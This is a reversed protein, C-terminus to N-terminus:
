DEFMVRLIAIVQYGLSQEGYHQGPIFLGGDVSAILWELLFADLALGLEVGYADRTVSSAMAATLAHLRLEDIIFWEVDIGGALLGAGDPAISAITPSSLRHSVGGGFFIGTKPILPAISVFGHYNRDPEPDTLPSPIGDDGSMAIGFLQIALDETLAYRADVGLYYSLLELDQETRHRDLIFSAAEDDGLFSRVADTFDADPEVTTDIAGFGVLAIAGLELDGIGLETQVGSWGLWGNTQIDYGIIPAVRAQLELLRQRWADQEIPERTQVFQESVHALEEARGRVLADELIPSFNDDGELFFTGIVRIQARRNFHYAVELNLLPSQKGAETFTVDPLLAGFRVSVPVPEDLLTGDADLVAGFAYADFIAGRGILPRLKGLELQVAGEVLQLDM